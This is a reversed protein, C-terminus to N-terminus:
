ARWQGSQNNDVFNGNTAMDFKKFKELFKYLLTVARGFGLQVVFETAYLELWRWNERSTMYLVTFYFIYVIAVVSTKLPIKLRNIM